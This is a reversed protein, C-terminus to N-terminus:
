WEGFGSMRSMGDFLPVTPRAFKIQDKEDWIKGDSLSRVWV